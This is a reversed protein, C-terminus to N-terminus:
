CWQAVFYRRLLIRTSRADFPKRGMLSNMLQSCCLNHAADIVAIGYIGFSGWGAAHDIRTSQDVHKSLFLFFRVLVLVLIRVLVGVRIRVFIPVLGWVLGFDFGLVLALVPSAREGISGRKLSTLPDQQLMLVLVLGLVPVFLVTLTLFSRRFVGRTQHHM